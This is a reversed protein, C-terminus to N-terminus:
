AQDRGARVDSASEQHRAASSGHDDLSRQLSLTLKVAMCSALYRDETHDLLGYHVLFWLSPFAGLVQFPARFNFTQVYLAMLRKYARARKQRM